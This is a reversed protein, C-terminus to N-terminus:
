RVENLKKLWEYLSTWTATDCSDDISYCNSKMNFYESLDNLMVSKVRGDILEKYSKIFDVTEGTIYTKRGLAYRLASIMMDQFIHTDKIQRKQLNSIMKATEISIIEGKM